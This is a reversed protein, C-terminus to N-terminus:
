WARPTVDRSCIIIEFSSRSASGSEHEPSVNAESPLMGLQTLRYGAGGGRAGSVGQRPGPSKAPTEARRTPRCITSAAPTACCSKPWSNLRCFEMERPRGCNCMVGQRGVGSMQPSKDGAVLATKRTATTRARPYVSLQPQDPALGRTHGPPRTGSSNGTLSTEM